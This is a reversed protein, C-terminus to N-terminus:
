RPVGGALSRRGVSASVAFWPSSSETDSVRLGAPANDFTVRVGGSVQAAAQGFTAAALAAGTPLPTPAGLAPGQGGGGGSAAVPGGSAAPSDGGFGLANAVQGAAGLVGGVAGRIREVIAGIKAWAHDFIGVVGDWLSQFFSTLPSFTELLGALVPEAAKAIADFAAAGVKWLQRLLFISLAIPGTFGTLIVLLVDWADAWGATVRKVVADVQNWKAILLVLAAVYALALAVALGVPNAYIAAAFNWAAVAAKGLNIALQAGLIAAYAEVVGKLGGIANWADRAWALFEGAAKLTAAWDIRDLADGIAKFAQDIKQGILERNAIIWASLKDVLPQLIPVLRSFLIGAAGGAIMKLRDLADGLNDAAEVAEGSMIAGSKRAAERQKNLGETGKDLIRLLAQGSGGFAATALAAKRQTDPLKDIAATILDFAQETSKAHKVQNALVPSVRMLFKLLKGTGAQAQGVGKSLTGLAADLDEAGLGAQKGVFYLEQLAEASIGLQTTLDALHGANELYSAGAMGLGAVIAAGGIAAYKTASLAFDSLKGVASGVSSAISKFAGGFQVRLSSAIKRVPGTIRDVASIIAKIKLDAGM